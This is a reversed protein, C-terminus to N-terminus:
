FWGTISKTIDGSRLKKTVLGSVTSKIVWRLVHHSNPSNVKWHNIHSRLNTELTHTSHLKLSTHEAWSSKGVRSFTTIYIVFEGMEPWWVQFFKTFFRLNSPQNLWYSYKSSITFLEHCWQGKWSLHFYSVDLSDLFRGEHPFPVAGHAMSTGPPSTM